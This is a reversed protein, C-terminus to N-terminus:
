VICAGDPSFLHAALSEDLRDAVLEAPALSADYAATRLAVVRMGAARAALV